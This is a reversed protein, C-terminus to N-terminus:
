LKETKDATEDWLFRVYRPFCLLSDVIRLVCVWLVVVAAIGLIACCTAIVVRLVPDVVNTPAMALLAAAPVVAVWFLTDKLRKHRHAVM